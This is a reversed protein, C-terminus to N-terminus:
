LQGARAAVLVCPEVTRGGRVRLPSPCRKIDKVAGHIGLWLKRSPPAPSDLLVLGTTADGVLRPLVNDPGHPKSRAKGHVKPHNDERQEDTGAYQKAHGSM